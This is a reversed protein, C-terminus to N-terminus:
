DSARGETAAERQFSNRATQALPGLSTQTTPLAPVLKWQFPLAQLLTDLPTVASRMATQPEVGLSTQAVLECPCVSCEFPPGHILTGLGWSVIPARFAMQPEPGLSM